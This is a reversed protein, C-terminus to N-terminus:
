FTWDAGIIVIIKAESSYFDGGNVIRGVGLEGMLVKAADAYSTDTYVILTEPYVIGEQTNGVGLVDYGFQELTQGLRAAAGNIGAGNRIEVTTGQTDIQNLYDDIKSPDEGNVFVERMREWDNAAVTYSPDDNGAAPVSYPVVTQYVTASELPRFVEGLDLLNQATYDTEVYKAAEGVITAFGIGQSELAARALALTFSVRNHACTSFGGQINTARIFVLASKGDLIQEGKKLVLTGADPDDIEGTM